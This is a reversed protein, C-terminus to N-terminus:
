FRDEWDDKISGSSGTPMRDIEIKKGDITVESFLVSAIKGDLPGLSSRIAIISGSDRDITAECLYDASQLRYQLRREKLKDHNDIISWIGEAAKIAVSDSEGLLLLPIFVSTHMTSRRMRRLMQPLLSSDTKVIPECHWEGTLYGNEAKLSCCVSADTKFAFSKNRVFDTTFSFQQIVKKESESRYILVQAKDSYSNCHKYKSFIEEIANPSENDRRVTEQARIDSGICASISAIQFHRRSIQM